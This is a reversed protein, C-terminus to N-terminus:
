LLKKRLELLREYKKRVESHEKDKNNEYATKYGSLYNDLVMLLDTMELENFAPKSLSDIINELERSKTNSVQYNRELAEFKGKWDTKPKSPKRPKEITLEKADQYKSFDM